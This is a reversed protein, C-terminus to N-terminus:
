IKLQKKQLPKVITNDFNVIPDFRINAKYILSVPRGQEGKLLDSLKDVEDILADEMSVKGFGLNRLKRISFQRQDFWEQGSSLILGRQTGDATGYNLEHFPRVM